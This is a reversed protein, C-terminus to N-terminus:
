EAAKELRVYDLGVMVLNVYTLKGAPVVSTTRGNVPAGPPVLVAGAEPKLIISPDEGGGTSTLGGWAAGAIGAGVVGAAALCVATALRLNKM